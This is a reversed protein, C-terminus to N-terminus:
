RPLCQIEEDIFIRHLKKSQELCLIFLKEAKRSDTDYGLERCFDEFIGPCFYDMSISCLISYLLRCRIDERSKWRLSRENISLYNTNSTFVDTDAISMGFRFSIEVSNRKVYVRLIIREEKDGDFYFDKGIVTVSIALSNMLKRLAEPGESYEFCVDNEQLLLKGSLFKQYDM